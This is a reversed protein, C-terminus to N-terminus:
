LKIQVGIDGAMYTMAKKGVLMTIPTRFVIAFNPDVAWQIGPRVQAAFYGTANLNSGSNTASIYGIAGGAAIAFTTNLDNFVKGNLEIGALIPFVRFASNSDAKLNFGNYGVSIFNPIAPDIFRDFYFGFSAGFGADFNQGQSGAAAAYQGTVELEVAQASTSFTTLLFLASLAAFQITKM